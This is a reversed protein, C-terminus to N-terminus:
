TVRVDEREVEEVALVPQQLITHVVQIILGTPSMVLLAVLEEMTCKHLLLLVAEVAGALVVVRQPQDV